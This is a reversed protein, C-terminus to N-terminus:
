LSRMKSYLIFFFWTQWYWTEFFYNCISVSLLKIFTKYFELKQNFVKLKTVPFLYLWKRPLLLSMKNISSSFKQGMGLDSFGCKDTLLHKLYFQVENLFFECNSCICSYKKQLCGNCGLIYSTGQTHKRNRWVFYKYHSLLWDKICSVIKTLLFEATFNDHM